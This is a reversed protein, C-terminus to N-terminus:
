IGAVVHHSVVMQLSIQNGRRSHRFVAVTYKCIIFLYIFLYKKFFWLWGFLCFDQTVLSLIFNIFYSQPYLKTTTYYGDLLCLSRPKIGLVM